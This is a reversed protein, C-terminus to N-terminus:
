LVAVSLIKDYECYLWRYDKDSQTYECYLWRYDKDSQFEVAYVLVVRDGPRYVNHVYGAHVYL